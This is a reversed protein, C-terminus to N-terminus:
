TISVSRQRSRICRRKCAPTGRPHGIRRAAPGAATRDGRRRADRRGLSGVHHRRWGGGPGRLPRLIGAPRRDHHWRPGPARRGVARLHHNGDGRHHDTRHAGLARAHAQDCHCFQNRHARCIAQSGAGGAHLGAGDAHRQPNRRGTGLRRRDPGPIRAVAEQGQPRHRPHASDAIGDPRSQALVPLPQHRGAHDHRRHVPVPQAPGDFHLQRGRDPDPDHRRDAAVASRGDALDRFIAAVPVLVRAYVASRLDATAREGVWSVTYYRASVALAWFAAM